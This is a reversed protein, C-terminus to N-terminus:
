KNIFTCERKNFKACYQRAFHIPKDKVVTLDLWSVMLDYDRPTVSDYAFRM